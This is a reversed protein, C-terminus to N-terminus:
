YVERVYVGGGDSLHQGLRGQQHYVAMKIRTAWGEAARKTPRGKPGTLFYRDTFRVFGKFQPDAKVAAMMKVARAVGYEWALYMAAARRSIQIEYKTM